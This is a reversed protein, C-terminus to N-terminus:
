RKKEKIEHSSILYLTDFIFHGIRSTTCEGIKILILPRIIRVFIVLPVAWIGNLLLLIIKIFKYWIIPLYHFAGAAIFNRAQMLKSKLDTNNHVRKIKKM